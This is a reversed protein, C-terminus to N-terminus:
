LRASSNVGSGHSATGSVRVARGGGGLHHRQKSSEYARGLHIAKWGSVTCEFGSGGKHV